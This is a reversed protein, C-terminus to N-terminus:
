DVGVVQRVKRAAVLLSMGVPLRLGSKISVRELGMMWGAVRNLSRSPNLVERASEERGKGTRWWGHMAIAAPLLLFMFSTVLQAQFGAQELKALMEARTYRRQHRAYEDRVSWLWPHQPVTILLGGGMRAAQNIQSLVARDDPFHELSDLACVLDFEDEFPLHNADAQLLEAQPARKVAAQLGSYFLDVGCLSMSPNARALAALAYGTGCGVELLSSARGFYKGLAWALLDNRGQFWFCSEESAALRDHGDQPYVAQDGAQDPALSIFGHRRPPCHGCAPCRWGQEFRNQCMPCIRM